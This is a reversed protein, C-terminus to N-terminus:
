AARRHMTDIMARYGDMQQLRTATTASTTEVLVVVDFNAGHLSRNAKLYSSFRATPPMVIARFMTVRVVDTLAKPTLLKPILGQYIFVAALAVRSITHILSHRIAQEPAVDQELWL